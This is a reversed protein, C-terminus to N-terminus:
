GIDEVIPPPQAVMKRTGNPHEDEMLAIGESLSVVVGDLADCEDDFSGQRSDMILVETVGAEDYVAGAALKQANTTETRAILKARTRASKFRGAPVFESLRSALQAVAEGDARGATLQEFVKRKTRKTMDLLGVRKGGAALIEVELPEPISIALSISAGEGASAGGAAVAQGGSGGGSIVGSANVRSVTAKLIRAYHTEYVVKLEAEFGAINLRETILAADMANQSADKHEIRIQLHLPSITAMGVVRQKGPEPELVDNAVDQIERGLRELVKLVDRAFAAQFKAVDNDFGRALGMQVRSPRKRRANRALSEELLTGQKITM